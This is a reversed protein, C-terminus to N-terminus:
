SSPQDFGYECYHNGAQIQELAFKVSPITNKPLARTNIWALESHVHPEANYPEGDWKTAEFFLDVWVNDDGEDRHMTLIPKLNEAKISVGAEEKAERIAALTYSEGKEVKGSPLGFYGNMWGTNSRHVFAVKDGDRMLVYSAIYPTATDYKM